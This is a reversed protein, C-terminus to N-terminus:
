FQLSILRPVPIVMPGLNTQQVRTIFLFDRTLRGRADVNWSGNGGPVANAHNRRTLGGTRGAGLDYEVSFIVGEQITEAGSSKEGRGCGALGPLALALVAASIRKANM